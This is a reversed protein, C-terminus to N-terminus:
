LKRPCGEPRPVRAREADRLAQAEDGVIRDLDALQYWICPRRPGYREAEVRLKAIRDRGPPEWARVWGRVSSHLVLLPSGDAPAPYFSPVLGVAAAIVFAAARGLWARAGDRLPWLGALTPALLMAALVVYWFASSDWGFWEGVHHPVVGAWALPIAFQALPRAIENPLTDYILGVTGITVVSALALGGAVGRVIARRRRGHRAVRETFCAAGFAFFPACVVLYRPGVTWGARWEVFGANVCVLLGCGVGWVLTSVRMTRRASPSGIPSLIMVPIALLGLWMFPSTGFFGFGPDALLARV